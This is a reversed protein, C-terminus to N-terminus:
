NSIRRVQDRINVMVSQPPCPLDNFDFSKTTWPNSDDYIPLPGAITALEGPTFAVM